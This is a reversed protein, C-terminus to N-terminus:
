WLTADLRGDGPRLIWEALTMAFMALLTAVGPMDQWTGIAPKKLSTQRLQVALSIITHVITADVRQQLGSRLSDALSDAGISTSLHHFTDTKTRVTDSFIQFVDLHLFVLLIM